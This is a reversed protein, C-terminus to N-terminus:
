ARPQFKRMTMCSVELQANIIQVHTSEPIVVPFDRTRGYIRTIYRDKFYLILFNEFFDYALM